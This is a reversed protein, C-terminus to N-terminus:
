SNMHRFMTKIIYTKATNIAIRYLWTYFASHFRFKALGQYTKLFIEQILDLCEQQDTTYYKILNTIKSQYKLVLKDFSHKNGAQFSKILYFDQNKIMQM